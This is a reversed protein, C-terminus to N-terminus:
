DARIQANVAAAAGSADDIVISLPRADRRHIVVAEGRQYALSTGRPTMRLGWGGVDGPGITTLEAGTIRDATVRWVPWPLFTRLRVGHQDISVRWWATALLPLGTLVLIVGIMFGLSPLFLLAVGALSIVGSIGLFVQSRVVGSWNASSAAPVPDDPRSGEYRDRPTLLVGAVCGIVSAGIAVLFWWTSLEVDSADELGRQAGTTALDLGIVFSTLGVTIAATVRSPVKLAWIVAGALLALGPGVALTTAISATLSSFGDAAGSGGWHRAIQDPLDGSWSWVLGAGALGIIVPLGFVIWAARPHRTM